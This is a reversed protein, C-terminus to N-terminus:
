EKSSEGILYLEVEPKISYLDLLDPLTFFLVSTQSFVGNKTKKAYVAIKKIENQYENEHM